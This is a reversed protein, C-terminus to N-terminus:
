GHKKRRKRPEIGFEEMHRYLSSRGIGLAIAVQQRNWNLVDLAQEILARRTERWADGDLKIQLAVEQKEKRM